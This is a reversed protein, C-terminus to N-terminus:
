MLLNFMVKFKMNRIYSLFFYLHSTVHEKGGGEQWLSDCSRPGGGGELTVYKISAGKNMYGVGAYIHCYENIPPIKCINHIYAAYVRYPAVNCTPRHQAWNFCIIFSFADIALQWSLTYLRVHLLEGLRGEGRWGTMFVAALGPSNIVPRNIM